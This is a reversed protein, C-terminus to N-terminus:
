NHTLRRIQDRRFAQRAYNEKGAGTKNKYNPVQLTCIAQDTTEDEIWDTNQM